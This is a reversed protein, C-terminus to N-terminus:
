LWCASILDIKRLSRKSFRSVKSLKLQANLSLEMIHALLSDPLDSIFDYHDATGAAVSLQESVVSKDDDKRKCDSCIVLPLLCLYAVCSVLLNKM